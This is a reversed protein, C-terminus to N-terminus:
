QRQPFIGQVCIYSEIYPLGDAMIEGQVYYQGNENKKRLDPLGFTQIGDGGYTTGILAFLAQNQSISMLQGHCVQWGEPSWNFAFQSITAIFEDM